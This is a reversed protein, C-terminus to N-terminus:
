RYQEVIQGLSGQVLPDSSVAISGSFPYELILVTALALGVVSALSVVLIADLGGHHTKLFLSTIISIVALSFLLAILTGPVAADASTVRANRETILADAQSVASNYFSIQTETEPTYGRLARSIELLKRQSEPDEHGARLAPFEHDRVEVIYDAVSKEVSAKPADPFADADTEIKSLSSAEEEVDTSADKYSGHLDVIVLALLLAFFTMVIASVALVVQSSSEDRWAPLFARLLAIGGIALIVAAVVFVVILAWEPVANLLARAM